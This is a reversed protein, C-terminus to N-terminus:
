GNNENSLFMIGCFLNMKKMPQDDHIYRMALCLGLPSLNCSFDKLHM